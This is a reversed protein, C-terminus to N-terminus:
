PTKSRFRESFLKEGEAIDKRARKMCKNIYDPSLLYGILSGAIMLLTTEIFFILTMTNYIAETM